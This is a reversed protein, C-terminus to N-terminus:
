DRHTGARRAGAHEVVVGDDLSRVLEQGHVDVHGSAGRTGLCQDVPDHLELVLDCAIRPHAPALTIARVAGFLSRVPDVNGSPVPSSSIAWRTRSASPSSAITSVTYKRSRAVSSTAGRLM